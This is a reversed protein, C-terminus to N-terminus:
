FDTIEQFYKVSSTEAPIFVWRDATDKKDQKQGNVMKPKEM